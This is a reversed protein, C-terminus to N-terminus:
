SGSASGASQHTGSLIAYRGSCPLSRPHRAVGLQHDLEAGGGVVGDPLDAEVFPHPHGFHEHDVPVGLGEAVPGPLPFPEHLGM